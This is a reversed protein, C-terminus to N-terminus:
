LDGAGSRPRNRGAVFGDMGAHTLYQNAMFMPAAFMLQALYYYGARMPMARQQAVM